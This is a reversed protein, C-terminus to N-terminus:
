KPPIQKTFTFYFNSGEGEKSIVWIKGGFNEIIKKTISLGIGTGSYENRSHLRQFLIFIKDYYEKGIGIGNDAISFQWDTEEEKVSIHIKCPIDARSYKLANSILNQFVQRMPSKYVAIVPLRETTIIAQKDEIQKRYLIQIENVLENLDLLESYEETKGVRSFELLDLIIRRMRRAGDVAFDIYKKGKDDIVDIYKKELQVLFNTIMRLPEQLDHSAVYAFQELEMNSRALEKTHLQLSENLEKLQKEALKRNTIDRLFACFFEENGQKIPLITLEVPFEENNRNVASLELLVNLAPAHGTQLYAAMGKDHMSRMSEPIIFKSLRKNLVEPEKWGFIREAQPNWFTIDGKTDICIIADLAANMILRTKEESSRIDETQMTSQTIDMVTSIMLNQEPLPINKANIIRKEGSETTISIGNWSMREPDGSQIDTVIRETIEKRYAPDPYVKEFFSDIDTLDKENWGYVESFLRNVFTATGENIKNVAIGIPIHQLITEIFVNRQKLENFLLQQKNQLNTEETIDRATVVIGIVQEADDKAPSFKLSIHKISDAFPIQILSTETAGKLVREYISKVVEKREPLAYDLVLNGKKVDIGFYTKYLHHFQANFSIITLHIDLFLFPEETNNVLLSLQKETIDHVQHIIYCLNQADDLVPINEPIWYKVAFENTGTIPINYRQVALAHPKRTATVTLLSQRLSESLQSRHTEHFGAYVDFITKGIFDKGIGTAASFAPNIDEITFHPTNPLLLLGPLPFVTFLNPTNKSM